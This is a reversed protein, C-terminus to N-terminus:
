STEKKWRHRMGYQMVDAGLWSAIATIHMALLVTRASM